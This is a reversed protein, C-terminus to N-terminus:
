IDIIVYTTLFLYLFGYILYEIWNYFKSDIFDFHCDFKNIDDEIKVGSHGYFKIKM